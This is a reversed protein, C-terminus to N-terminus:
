ASQIALFINMDTHKKLAKLNNKNEATMKQFLTNPENKIQRYEEPSFEKKAGSLMMRVVINM